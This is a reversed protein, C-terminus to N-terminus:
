KLTLYNKLRVTITKVISPLDLKRVKITSYMFTTQINKLRFNIDHHHFLSHKCYDEKNGMRNRKYDNAYFLLELFKGLSYSWTDPSM